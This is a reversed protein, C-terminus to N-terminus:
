LAAAVETGQKIARKADLEAAVDAGGILHVGARGRGPRRRGSRSRAPASSSTTSRSCRRPATSPSTCRRRRRDPRVVGRQGPAGRVAQAGRPAGLGVDQRARHRDPHDQAPDPHGRPRARAAEARDPRRPAPGPRRRGLAGDVRRPRAPEHTLWYPSTSASAAPASWRSGARRARGAGSLVEDYAAVSRTTSARRAGPDAARRRHGGRRRRVGRPRGATAEAGLRVDVGLVELRRRYYRLTEAFDEKGPVPM